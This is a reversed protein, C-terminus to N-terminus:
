LVHSALFEDISDAAFPLQTHRCADLDAVVDVGPARRADLNIWGARIDGGCGLHLRQTGAAITHAAVPGSRTLWTKFLTGIM